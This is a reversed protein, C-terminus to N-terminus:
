GRGRIRNRLRQVPRDVGWVLLVSLALAGLASLLLNAVGQSSLGHVHRRFVLPAGVLFYSVIAGAQWHVLYLPYSLEGLRKDWTANLLPLGRGHVALSFVVLVMLALNLYFGQEVVKPNSLLAGFLAAAGLNGFALALWLSPPPVRATWFENPASRAIFYLLSGLSFPLSAAAVPYYRSEFGLGLYFTGAYYGLSAVVWAWVRRSTKSLGLAILAYFFLEVTLAWTPPVLRPREGVPSWLSFFMFFNQGVAQWSDPVFMVAHYAKIAKAGFVVILLLTIGSAIWYQPYLRLCRNVAFRLRGDRTYGYSEHMVLTMLYGSIIYFGFVAYTGPLYGVYLHGLLVILALLTRLAGFM